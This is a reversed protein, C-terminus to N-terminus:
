MSAVVSVIVMDGEQRLELSVNEYSSNMRLKVFRLGLGGSSETSTFKGTNCVEISFIRNEVHVKMVVSSDGNWKSVGHKVANEALTLLIGMPINLESASEACQIQYRLRDGFRMKEVELYQEVMALEAKVPVTGVESTALSFRLIESLKVIGDRARQPDIIVLAKMSNLANFLFHPNLQTRLLKLETEKKQNDIELNDLELQRKRYTLQYFFYVFIWVLTYRMVNVVNLTFNFVNLFRMFRDYDFVLDPLHVLSALLVTWVFSSCLAWILIATNSKEFVRYRKFISRMWHSTLIGFVPYATLFIVFLWDVNWSVIMVYNFLEVGFM